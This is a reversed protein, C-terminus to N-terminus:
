LEEGNIEKYLTEYLQKEIIEETLNEFDRYEIKVILQKNGTKKYLLTIPLVENKIDIDLPLNQSIDMYYFFINYEDPNYKKALNKMMTLLKKNEPKPVSEDVLTLVVNKKQEIIEKNYTQQTVLKLKGSKQIREIYEKIAEKTLDKPNASKVM